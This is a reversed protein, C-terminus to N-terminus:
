QIDEVTNLCAFEKFYKKAAQNYAMAAKEENFFTGLHIKKYNFKIQATWAKSNHNFSVGKYKSSTISKDKRKNHCNQQQTAERLNHRQCDLSNGNRHDIGVVGNLILTHLFTEKGNIYAVAYRKGKIKFLRWKFQLLYPLLDEDVLAFSTTNNVKLFAM